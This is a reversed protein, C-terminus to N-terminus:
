SEGVGGGLEGFHSLSGGLLGGLLGAGLGRAPALLLDTCVTVVITGMGKVLLVLQM